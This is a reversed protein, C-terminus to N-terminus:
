QVTINIRHGRAGEEGPLRVGSVASYLEHAQQKNFVFAFHCCGKGGGQVPEIDDHVIDAREIKGPM